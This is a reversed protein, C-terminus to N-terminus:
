VWYYEPIFLASPDTVEALKALEGICEHGKEGTLLIYELDDGDDIREDPKHWETDAKLLEFASYVSSLGTWLPAPVSALTQRNAKWAESNFRIQGWTGFSSRADELAKCNRILEPLLTRSAVRVSRRESRARLIALAGANLGAGLVVGALGILAADM